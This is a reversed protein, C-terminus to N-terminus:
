DVELFLCRSLAPTVDAPVDSIHLQITHVASGLGHSNCAAHEITCRASDTWRPQSERLSGLLVPLAPPGRSPARVCKGSQHGGPACSCVSDANCLGKSRMHVSRNLMQATNCSHCVVLWCASLLRRGFDAAVQYTGNPVFLFTGFPPGPQTAQMTRLTSSAWGQASPPRALCTQQKQTEGSWAM